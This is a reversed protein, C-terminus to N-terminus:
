PTYNLDMYGPITSAFTRARERVAITRNGTLPYLFGLRVQATVAVEFVTGYPVSDLNIPALSGDPLTTTLAVELGYVEISLPNNALEQAFVTDLQSCTYQSHPDSWNSFCPLTKQLATRLSQQVTMLRVVELTGLFLMLVLPLVIAYEILAAGREDRWNRKKPGSM